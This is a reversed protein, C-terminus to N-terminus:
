QKAPALNQLITKLELVFRQNDQSNLPKSLFESKSWKARQKNMMTKEATLIVLPISSLEPVIRIQKMLQFGSIEPMNIDIFIVSPRYKLLFNLAELANSCCEVRYGLARVVSSFQKLLVPSDDVIAIKSTDSKASKEAVSPENEKPLLKCAEGISVLEQKILKSFTKAIRLNDEGLRYRVEELTSGSNVLKELKAREVVSLRKWQSSKVNCQVHCDFSPIFNEIEKWQNRRLAIESLVQEIDLGVIPRLKDIQNNSILKVQQINYSLYKELEAIIHSRIAESFQRYNLIKNSLALEGLLGVILIDSETESRHILKKIIEPSVLTNNRLSLIYNRLVNLIDSFNILQHNSFVIKGRSFFLYWAGSNSSQHSQDFKIELYGTFNLKDTNIKQIILLLNNSSLNM